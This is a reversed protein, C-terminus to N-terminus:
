PGTAFAAPKIWESMVETHRFSPTNCLKQHHFQKVCPINMECTVNPTLVGDAALLYEKKPLWASHTSTISTCTTNSKNSPKQAPLQCLYISNWPEAPGWIDNTLLKDWQITNDYPAANGHHVPLPPSIPSSHQNPWPHLAPNPAKIKTCTMKIWCNSRQAQHQTEAQPVSPRM